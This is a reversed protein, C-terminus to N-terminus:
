VKWQYTGQILKGSNRGAQNWDSVLDRISSDRNKWQTGDHLQYTRHSILNEQSGM